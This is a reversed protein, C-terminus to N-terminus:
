EDDSGDDDLRDPLLALAEALPVVEVAPLLIAKDAAEWMAHLYGGPETAILIDATHMFRGDSVPTPIATCGPVGYQLHLEDLRDALAGSFLLAYAQGWEAAVPFVVDELTM